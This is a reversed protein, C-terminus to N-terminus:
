FGCAAMTTNIIAWSRNGEGFCGEHWQGEFRNGGAQRFIGYGHPKEDRWEGEYHSGDPATLIGYGTRKDDRWEGQYASGDVYFMEGHGYKKGHFWQGSYRNGAPWTYTGQGHMKNDRLEGEYRSGDAWIYTGDGAKMGDRFEGKYHDGDAIFVEGRGHMKDDRWHGEYRVGDTGIDIGYGNRKGDRYEGEYRAGDAWEDIWHGSAKGGVLTGTGEYGSHENGASVSYTGHGEAVGRLCQGTWETAQDSHYHNRWLYCGRQNESEVWCEAHNEGLYQGPLEACKPGVTATPTTQTLISKLQDQSLHGIEVYGNAQQWAQIARRTKPGFKGDAPGPDFGAAALAEQLRRWESWKLEVAETSPVGPGGCKVQEREFHRVCLQAQERFLPLCDAFEWDKTTSGFDTNERCRAIKRQVEELCQQRQAPLDSYTAGEIDGFQPKVTNGELTECSFTFSTIRAEEAWAGSGTSVAALAVVLAALVRINSRRM